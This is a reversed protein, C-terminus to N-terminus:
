WVSIDRRQELLNIADTSLKLKNLSDRLTHRVYGPRWSRRTAITFVVGGPMDRLM